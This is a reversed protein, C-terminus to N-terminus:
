SLPTSSKKLCPLVPQLFKFRGMGTVAAATKHKENDSVRLVRRSTMTRQLTNGMLPGLPAPNLIRESM